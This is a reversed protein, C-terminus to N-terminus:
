EVRVSDGLFYGFVVLCNFCIRFEILKFIGKEKFVKIDKFKNNIKFIM